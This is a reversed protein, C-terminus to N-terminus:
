GIENIGFASPWANNSEARCEYREHPKDKEGPKVAFGPDDTFDPPIVTLRMRMQYSRDISMRPFFCEGCKGRHTGHTELGRHRHFRFAFLYAGCSFGRANNPQRTYFGYPRMPPVHLRGHYRDM